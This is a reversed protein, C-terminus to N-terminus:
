REAEKKGLLRVANARIRLIDGNMEQEDVIAIANAGLDAARRQLAAIMESRNRPNGTENNEVLSSLPEYNYGKLEDMSGFVQVAGTYAPYKTRGQHTSTQDQGPFAAGGGRPTASVYFSKCSLLTAFCIVAAFLSSKCLNTM